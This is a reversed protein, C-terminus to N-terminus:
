HWVQIFVYQSWTDNYEEQSVFDHVTLLRWKHYTLWNSNGKITTKYFTNRDVGDCYQQRVAGHQKTIWRFFLVETQYHIIYQPRVGRSNKFYINAESAFKDADINLKEPSTLNETKKVRDQHGKVHM